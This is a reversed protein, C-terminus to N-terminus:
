NVILKESFQGSKIFYIGKTLEAINLRKETESTKFCYTMVIKGSLDHIEVKNDYFGLANIIVYDSAPNPYFEIIQSNNNESISLSNQNEFAGIDINGGYVRPLGNADSSPINYMEKSNSKGKDIMPSDDNLTWNYKEGDDDLGIYLSPNVFKPDTDFLNGYDNFLSGILLNYQVSDPNVCMNDYEDFSVLITDSSLYHKAYNNWLINNVVSVKNSNVTIVNLDKSTLDNNAITNNVIKARGLSHGNYIARGYNNCIVNNAILANVTSEYVIGSPGVNNFFKNNLVKPAESEMNEINIYIAGGAGGIYSGYSTQAFHYASNYKFLNSIILGDSKQGMYIAGGYNYTKNHYFKNNQIIGSCQQMFLGGGYELAANNQIISNSIRIKDFGHVYLVGGKQEIAEEGFAKGYELVCYDFISSDNVSPTNIFYLGKWGGDVLTSDAFGTTDMATFYISESPTGKAHICGNVYVGWFGDSMIITGPTITLKAGSDIYIDHKLFVTDASWITDSTITNPATSNQAYIAYSVFFLFSLIITKKM